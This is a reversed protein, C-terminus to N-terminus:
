TTRLGAIVDPRANSLMARSISEDVNDLHKEIASKEYVHLRDRDWISFVPFDPLCGTISCCANNLSEECSPDVFQIYNEIFNKFLKYQELTCDNKFQQYREGMKLRVIKGDENALSWLGNKVCYGTGVSFGTVGGVAIRKYFGLSFYAAFIGGVAASVASCGWVIKNIKDANLSHMRICAQYEPDANLKKYMPFFNTKKIIKKETESIQSM